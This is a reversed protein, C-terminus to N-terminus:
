NGQHKDPHTGLDIRKVDKFKGTRDGHSRAIGQGQFCPNIVLGGIYINENDNKMCLSGAVVNNKEIM